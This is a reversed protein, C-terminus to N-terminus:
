KVKAMITEPGRTVEIQAARAKVANLMSREFDDRSRLVAEVWSIQLDWYRLKFGEFVDPIAEKEAALLDLFPETVRWTQMITEANNTATRFFEFATKLDDFVKDQFPDTRRFKVNKNRVCMLYRALLEDAFIEVFTDCLAHHLVPRYAGFSEEFTAILKKM